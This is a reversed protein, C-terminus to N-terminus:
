DWGPVSVEKTAEDDRWYRLMVHPGRTLVEGVPGTLSSARSGSGSGSVSRDDPGEGLLGDEPCPNWLSLAGPSRSLVMVEVGPVPYGVCSGLSLQSPRPEMADSDM